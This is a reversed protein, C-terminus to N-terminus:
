RFWGRRARSHSPELEPDSPDGRARTTSRGRRIRRAAQQPRHAAWVKPLPASPRLAQQVASYRLALRAVLRSDPRFGIRRLLRSARATQGALEDDESWNEGAATDSLGDPRESVQQAWSRWATLSVVLAEASEASPHELFDAIKRHLFGPLGPFREEIDKVTPAVWKAALQLVNQAEDREAPASV